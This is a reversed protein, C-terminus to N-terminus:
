FLRKSDKKDGAAGMCFDEKFEHLPGFARRPDKLDAAFLRCFFTKAFKLAFLKKYFLKNRNLESSLCFRLYDQM